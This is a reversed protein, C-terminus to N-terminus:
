VVEFSSWLNKSVVHFRLKVIGQSYGLKITLCGALAGGSDFSRKSFSFAKSTTLYWCYILIHRCM